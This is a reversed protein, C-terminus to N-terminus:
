ISKITQKNENKLNFVFHSNNHVIRADSKVCINTDGYCGEM